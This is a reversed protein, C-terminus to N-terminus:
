AAAVAAEAEILDAARRAGGEAEIAAGIAALRSPLAPDALLESLAGRLAEPTAEATDLRRAVGLEVLRDANAFQDAAQPVAIMPVGAALGEKAGGMGAHTVFASAHALVAVQPVFRHLEVNPAVTGLDAPDVHEGLAMVVQWDLGGFAEACARFFAPQDTFASGLSVLLLPEGGSPAPWGGRRGPVDVCPGVFTYREPDVRDANPQLARPILALCRDPRGLFDDVELPVGEEALWAAFSREYRRYSVTERLPGLVPAMDAEYGDWAVYAPSLQIAPVGWRHALVRGPYGGIDYLVVDPRDGDFAAALQPLVHVAEDFFWRFSEVPDEGSWQARQGAATTPWTTEYPVPTAGTEAVADAFAPTVAYSVRHGRASLERVVPLSPNVHGHAPVTFMAVHLPGRIRSM